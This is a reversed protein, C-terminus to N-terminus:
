ALVEFLRQHVPLYFWGADGRGIIPIAEAIADRSMMMSGLLAMEADLDQPPLREPRTAAVASNNTAVTTM